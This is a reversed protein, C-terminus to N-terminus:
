FRFQHRQQRELKSPFTDCIIKPDVLTAAIPNLDVSAGYLTEPNFYKRGYPNGVGELCCLTLIPTLQDVFAIRM